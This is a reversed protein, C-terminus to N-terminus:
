SGPLGSLLDPIIILHTLDQSSLKLLYDRDPDSFHGSQVLLGGLTLLEEFGVGKIGCNDGELSRRCLEGRRNAILLDIVYLGLDFEYIGLCYLHHSFSCAVPLGLVTM